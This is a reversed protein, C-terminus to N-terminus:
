HMLLYQPRVYVSKSVTIPKLNVCGKKGQLDYGQTISPTILSKLKPIVKCLADIRHLLEQAAM